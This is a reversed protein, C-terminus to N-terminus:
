RQIAGEEAEITLQPPTPRVDIEMRLITAGEEKLDELFGEQAAEAEERSLYPGFYYTCRPHDTEIELWTAKGIKELIATLFDRM